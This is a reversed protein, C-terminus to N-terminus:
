LSSYADQPVLTPDFMWDDRDRRLGPHSFPDCAPLLGGWRASFLGRDADEAIGGRSLGEHHRLSARAAVASAQGHEAVRLCYDVDNFVLPLAEDFGGVAEFTSRRTLLCAGTVATQARNQGLWRRVRAETGTCHRFTHRCEPWAGGHVYIGAHQISGDPYRLVAGVTGIGPGGALDVMEGLWGPELPEVDDNLFLLWPASTTRAAANNLASWNFPADSHLTRVAWPALFSEAEAPTATGMNNLVVVIDLAPYATGKRLGDLCAALMRRDALRSPVIVTVTEPPAAEVARPAAAPPVASRLTFLVEPVRMGRSRPSALAPALTSEGRGRAALADWAADDLCTRRVLWARAAIAPHAHLSASWGPKLVPDVAGSPGAHDHDAYVLDAATEALRHHLRAGADDRVQDGADLLGVWDGELAARVRQREAADADHALVVARWRGDGARRLASATAEADAREGTAHSRVIWTAQPGGAISVALTAPAAKRCREQWARYVVDADGVVLPRLWGRDASTEDEVRVELAHTGPALGALPLRASFGSRAAGGRDGFAAAVDARQLGTVAEAPPGADIRAVVRRLTGGTSAWGRVELQEGLVPEGDDLPSELVGVFGHRRERELAPSPM